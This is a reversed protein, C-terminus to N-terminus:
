FGGYGEWESVLEIGHVAAWGTELHDGIMMSSHYGQLGQSLLTM